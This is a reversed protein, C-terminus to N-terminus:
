DLLFANRLGHQSHINETLCLGAVAFSSDKYKGSQLLQFWDIAFDGDNNETM